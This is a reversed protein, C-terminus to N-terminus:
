PPPPPPWFLSEFTFMYRWFQCIKSFLPRCVSPIIKTEYFTNRRFDHLIHSRDFSDRDLIFRLRAKRIVPFTCFRLCKSNRRENYWVWIKEIRIQSNEPRMRFRLYKGWTAPWNATWESWFQISIKSTQIAWNRAFIWCRVSGLTVESVAAVWTFRTPAPTVYGLFLGFKLGKPCITVAKFGFVRFSGWIRSITKRVRSQVNSSVGIEVNIWCWM